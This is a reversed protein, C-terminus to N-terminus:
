MPWTSSPGSPWTSRISLSCLHVSARMVLDAVPTPTPTGGPPWLGCPGHLFFTFEGQSYLDCALLGHPLSLTQEVPIINTQPTLHVLFKGLIVLWSASSERKLPTWRGVLEKMGWPLSVPREPGDGGKEPGLVGFCMSLGLKSVM